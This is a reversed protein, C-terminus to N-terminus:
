FPLEKDYNNDFPLTPRLWYGKGDKGIVYRLRRVTIIYDPKGTFVPTKYVKFFAM